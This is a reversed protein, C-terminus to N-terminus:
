VVAAAVKAQDSVQSVSARARNYVDILMPYNREPTYKAEYEARAAWGMAEMENPHTWAWDVKAALDDADGSIFHLGTRHDQVIEEAVGVRSAIVPVGCAFAEIAVYGFTEYYGRSPWILFCADSLLENLGKRDLRPLIEIAGGSKRAAEQVEALLPGEGRIKLPINGLERFARLLTPVGKEHALRGVFVAYRGKGRVIGPDEVFHPKLAIKDEPFGAEIFKRRYFQTTVVYVTVMQEWTKLQWHVALMTALVGTQINSQRYCAHLVSPWAIKKGKCDECIRDNRELNGGPCFLRPNHLTQVVPVGADRCAYYVSPSMLPFTNHFHVVDPKEEKLLTLMAKRSDISWVTGLALATKALFDTRTIVSNDRIFEKVYHGASRLLEQERRLTEDEGGPIQYYNHALVVRLQDKRQPARALSRNASGPSATVGSRVREEIAPRSDIAAATSTSRPRGHSASELEAAAIAHQYIELLRPYNRAASYKDEYEQRAAKSMQQMQQPHNWAWEVKEALDQSDGPTFHLGTRGDDVIEQMAGLRSCIVPVGCAFAEIMTLGFTEYWESSFILFRAGRITAVAQDHPLLGTFKVVDLKSNSAKQALLDQQVGGGVIVLPICSRIRTWADLLSSIRREQSLRGAFVAYDGDSTRPGPDPDVFNPKVFVKEPPLGGQLFKSRAFETLAIYSTVEREWTHRTRHVALMMSVAATEARSDRYCRNRLSRWLSHEMCEECPRGDRFFTGVPCLLRYNHLTQVVPVGAERCASYIAPSIMIWTNHVHVVDPREARLLDAFTERTADNWIAKKLLVLRKVGPYSDVEFNSRQYVVVQHGARELLQREQEFVVDEGGPQQYQCHVLIIKV